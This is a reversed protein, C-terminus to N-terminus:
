SPQKHINSQFHVRHKHKNSIRILTKEYTREEKRMASIKRRVDFAPLLIMDLFDRRDVVMVFTSM